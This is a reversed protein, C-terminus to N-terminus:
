GEGAAVDAAGARTLAQMVAEASLLEPLVIGEPAGPVGADQRRGGGAGGRGLQRRLVLDRQARGM